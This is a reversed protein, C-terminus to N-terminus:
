WRCWTCLSAVDLRHQAFVLDSQFIGLVHLAAADEQQFAEVEIGSILTRIKVIVRMNAWCTEVGTETLNRRFRCISNLSLADVVFNSAVSFFHAILYPSKHGRDQPPFYAPVEFFRKFNRRERGDWKFPSRFHRSSYGFKFLHITTHQSAFRRM